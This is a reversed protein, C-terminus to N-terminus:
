GLLEAIFEPKIVKVGWAASIEYTTMRYGPYAALEFALSSIPDVLTERMTALDQMNPLEPLREILVTSSRTYALNRASTANVAVAANDAIVERLGPAAIVVVNSALATNVVYKHNGITLVDGALITGTGTDLTLSTAGVGYGGSNNILYGSGTGAAVSPVFASKRINLGFLDALTGNRLTDDTGAQNVNSLQTLSLYGAAATSNLTLFRENQPAGNDDLIQVLKAIEALNTGLPTTGSTGYARSGYTAMALGLDTEIENVLTRFAQAIQNQQISLFGPGAEDMAYAEEGTWSFPVARLKSITIGTNTLVQDARTPLAMAPVIDRAANTPVAPIRVTQGLAVRDLRADRTVTPIIGIQERAVVDLAAYADQILGSLTNAM